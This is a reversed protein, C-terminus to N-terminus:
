ISMMGHRWSGGEIRSLHVARERPMVYGTAKSGDSLTIAVRVFLEPAGEYEDIESLRSTPVEYLQGLVRTSGGELMAPYEGADALEYAPHTSVDGLPKADGLLAHNSEGRLLTGYVFLRFTETM